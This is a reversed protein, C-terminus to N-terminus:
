RLRATKRADAEGAGARGLDVGPLLHLLRVLESQRHTGTKRLTDRIHVRVTHPSLFEREAIENLTEGAALRIAIISEKRSLGFLSTLVAADLVSRSESNGMLLMAAPLQWPGEVPQRSVLPVVILPVPQGGSTIHMWSGAAAADARGGARGGLAAAQLMKVLVGQLPETRARLVGHELTLHTDAQVLSEAWSNAYRVRLDAQLVMVGFDLSDLGALGMSALGSLEFNRHQMRAARAWHPMVHALRRARHDHSLGGKMVGGSMASMLVCVDSTDFLRIGQELGHCDFAQTLSQPRVAVLAGDVDTVLADNAAGQGALVPGQMAARDHAGHRAAGDVYAPLVRMHEPMAAANTFCGHPTVGLRTECALKDWILYRPSTTCTYQSFLDLAAPMAAVDMASEYICDVLRHFQDDASPHEGM